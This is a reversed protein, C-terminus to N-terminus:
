FSCQSPSCARKQAQTLNRIQAFQFEYKQWNLCLSLFVFLYILDKCHSAINDAQCDASLLSLFNITRSSLSWSNSDKFVLVHTIKVIQRQNTLNNDTAIRCFLLGAINFIDNCQHGVCPSMPYCENDIAKLFFFKRM